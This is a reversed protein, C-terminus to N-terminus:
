RQNRMKERLKSIYRILDVIDAKKKRWGFVVALIFIQWPELTINPTSWEGEKHPLLEIFECIDNGHWDDFYFPYDPDTRAKELDKLHRQAALRVWKGYTKRNKPDAAAKAYTLATQVYPM